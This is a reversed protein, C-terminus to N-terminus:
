VRKVREREEEETRYIYARPSVTEGGTSTGPELKNNRLEENPNRLNHFKLAKGKKRPHETPM